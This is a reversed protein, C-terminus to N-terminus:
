PLARILMRADLIRPKQSGPPSLVARLHLPLTSEVAEEEELEGLSCDIVMSVMWLVILLM